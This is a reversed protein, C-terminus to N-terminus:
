VSSREFVSQQGTPAMHAQPQFLSIKSKFYACINGGGVIRSISISIGLNILILAVGLRGNNLYLAPVSERLDQLLLRSKSPAFQMGHRIVETTSPNTFQTARVHPSFKLTTLTSCNRLGIEQYSNSVVM